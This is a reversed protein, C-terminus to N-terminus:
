ARDPLVVPKHGDEVKLLRALAIGHERRLLDDLHRRQQEVERALRRAEYRLEVLVHPWRAVRLQAGEAGLQRADRLRLDVGGRGERGDHVSVDGPEFPVTGQGIAAVHEEHGAAVVVELAAEGLIRVHVVVRQWSAVASPAVQLAGKRRVSPLLPLRRAHSLHKVREPQRELALMVGADIVAAVEGSYDPAQQRLAPLHRGCSLSRCRCPTHRTHALRATGRNSTQQPRFSRKCQRAGVHTENVNWVRGCVCCMRM